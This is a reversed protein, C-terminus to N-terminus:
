VNKCVMLDPLLLRMRSVPCRSLEPTLRSAQFSGKALFQPFPVGSDNTQNATEDFLIIGSLHQEVGPATFFLQRYLRRTEGTCEIGESTFRQCATRNSEDAALIGKTPAVLQRAIEHLSSM